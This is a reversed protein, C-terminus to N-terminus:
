NRRLKKQQKFDAVLDSPYQDPQAMHKKTTTDTRGSKLRHIEDGTNPQGPIKLTDKKFMPNTDRLENFSAVKEVPNAPNEQVNFRSKSYKLDSTDNTGSRLSERETHNQTVGEKSKTGKGTDSLDGIVTELPLRELKM